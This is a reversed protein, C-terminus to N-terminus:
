QKDAMEHAIRERLVAIVPQWQADPQSQASGIAACCLLVAAVMAHFLCLIRQKKLQLLLSM